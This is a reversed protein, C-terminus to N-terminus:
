LEHALLLEYLRVELDGAIGLRSDPSLRGSPTASYMPGWEMEPFPYAVAYQALRRFADDFNGYLTPTPIGGDMTLVLYVKM